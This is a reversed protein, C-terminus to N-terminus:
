FPGGHSWFHTLFPEFVHKELLSRPGNPISLFQKKASKSSTTISKPGHFIGLDRACPGSLSCFQNFFPDFVHKQLLSGLGNPTCLCTFHAWKSGTKVSNLGKRSMYAGLQVKRVYRLAM